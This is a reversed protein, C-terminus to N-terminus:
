LVEKSRLASLLVYMVWSCVLVASTCYATIKHGGLEGGIWSVNRRITLIALCLFAFAFFVLVSFVVDKSEYYYTTGKALHYVTAMVWPLGLGLFVNVSNSGTVNTIAADATDDATTAEVSAFTDPLSTGLAVFTIATIADELGICCGFMKAMDGVFMTIFAITGLSCWFTAWGGWIDTPPVFAHFVKWYFSLFHFVYDSFEPDECDEGGMNMADHFQESWSSSGVQYKGMEVDMLNVVEEMLEQYEQDNTIIVTCMITEGMQAGEPEVGNIRLTFTSNTRERNPILKITVEMESQKDGFHVEFDDSLAEFDEGVKATGDLSQVFALVNGDYGDARVLKVTVSDDTALAHVTKSDFQIKGPDDDNLIMVQTTAVTLRPVQGTNTHSAGNYVQGNFLRVFFYEDPEWENDDVIEIEIKKETEGPGFDIVGSVFIYDEGCVATGDSTDYQVTCGQTMFGTRTLVVVVTGASELIRYSPEEFGIAMEDAADLPNGITTLSEDSRSDSASSGLSPMVRRGGTMRRTAQIRYELRSKKKKKMAEEAAMKAAAMPDAKMTGPDLVEVCTKSSSVDAANQSVRRTTAVRTGTGDTSVIGKVESTRRRSKPRIPAEPSVQQTSSAACYGFWEQDQAYSVAVLIPFFVLTLLAEIITVENPTWFELVIVMWFYAWLSSIATIVFVYYEDISRAELQTPDDEKEPLCSVCIATIFLLNFAASGV